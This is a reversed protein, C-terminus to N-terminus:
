LGMPSTRIVMRCPSISRGAALTRWTSTTTATMTAVTSPNSGAIVIDVGLRVLEAALAPLRQVEGDAFGYEIVINQGVRYGLSRLGEDFAKIFNLQTQRSGGALYGVRYIRGAPQQARAAPPWTAAAGGVAAIFERRRM